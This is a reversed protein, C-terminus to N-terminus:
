VEEVFEDELRLMRACFWPTKEPEHKNQVLVVKWDDGLAPDMMKRASAPIYVNDGTDLVMGFAPGDDAVLNTITIIAVQPKKNGM